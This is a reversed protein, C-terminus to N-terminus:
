VFYSVKGTKIRKGCEHFKRTATGYNHISAEKSFVVYSKLFQKVLIKCDELYTSQGNKKLSGGWIEYLHM